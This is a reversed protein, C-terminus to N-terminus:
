GGQTRPMAIHVSVAEDLFSVIIPAVVEPREVVLNHGLDALVVASAAPYAQTLATHHEPGFLPDKGGSLILVRARVDAAHRAVAFGTLERIVGRWVHTPIAAMERDFYRVFVPDVPTPSSGPSWEGLFQENQNAPATTSTLISWLPQERGLPALATSGALVIADTREPYEAAFLQAVMSGLSSGVIAAKRVNLSDLFLRIDYAFDAQAYCCEPKSSGGHGRQDPILLRYKGLHPVLISWLRSTDTLGHLLVVPAGRPDGAEIYAMSIGNSLEVTKKRAAWGAQDVAAAPVSSAFAPPTAGTALLTTLVGGLLASALSIRSVRPRHRGERRAGFCLWSPRYEYGMM